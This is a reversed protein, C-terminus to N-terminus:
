PKDVPFIELRVHWETSEGPQLIQIAGDQIGKWEKGFPDDLNTQMGLSVYTADAPSVVHLERISPTFATMRIGYGAAVNRLEVSPGNDLASPKMGVIAASFDTDELGTPHGQFRAVNPSSLAFTGSPLGKAADAFEM